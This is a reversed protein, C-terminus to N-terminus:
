AVTSVTSGSASGTTSSAAAQYASAGDSGASATSGGLLSPSAGLLLSGLDIQAAANASANVTFGLASAKALLGNVMELAGDLSAKDPRTVAGQLESSRLVASIDGVFVTSGNIGAAASVNATERILM